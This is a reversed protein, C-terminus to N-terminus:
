EDSDDPEAEPEQAPEQAPEPAPEQAPGAPSETDPEVEIEADPSVEVVEIVAAEEHEPTRDEAREIAAVNSGHTPELSEGGDKEPDVEIRGASRPWAPEAAKRPGCAALALAGALSLAIACRRM